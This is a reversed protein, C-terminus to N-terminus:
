IWISNSNWRVVGRLQKSVDDIGFNLKALAVSIDEQGAASSSSTIPARSPALTTSRSLGGGPTPPVAGPKQPHPYPEGALIANAYENADFSPSAFTTYDLVTIAMLHPDMPSPGIFAGDHNVGM